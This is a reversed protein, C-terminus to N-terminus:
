LEKKNSDEKNMNDLAYECAQIVFGSFSVQGGATTIADEIRNILEVPFRISKNETDIKDHKLQFSM